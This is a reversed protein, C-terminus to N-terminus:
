IDNKISSYMEEETSKKWMDNDWRNMGESYTMLDEEHIMDVMILAFVIMNVENTVESM